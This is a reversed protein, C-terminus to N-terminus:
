LDVTLLHMWLDKNENEGKDTREGTMGNIAEIQWNGEGSVSYDPPHPQGPWQWLSFQATLQHLTDFLHGMLKEIMQCAEDM